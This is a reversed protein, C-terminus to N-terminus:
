GNIIREIEDWIPECLDPRYVSEKFVAHENKYLDLKKQNNQANSARLNALRDAAKVLLALEERGSVAAMKKYTKHKRAKRNIGSEDTLISVCNSVFEGFVTRIEDLTTETDEVVDHLYAIVTAKSGYSSSIRAVEDLHVSYPQEGYKQDGHRELAFERAHEEM